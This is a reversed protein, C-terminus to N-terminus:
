KNKNRFGKLWDTYESEPPILGSAKAESFDLSNLDPACKGFQKKYSSRLHEGHILLDECLLHSFFVVNNLYSHIAEVLNPYENHAKGTSLPIGFYYNSLQNSPINGNSFNHIMKDRNLISDNLMVISQDLESFISLVRGFASIKNFVLDKLMEIPVVLAPFNRLDAIFHYEQNNQKDISTIKLEELKKLEQAYQVYLPQVQQKKLVLASNCISFAVMIAANSNNLEKVLESRRKNREVIRQAGFAGGFAGACAGIVSVAFNSNMAAWLAKAFSKIYGLIEPLFTSFDANM